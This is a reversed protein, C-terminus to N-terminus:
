SSAILEEPLLIKAHGPQCPGSRGLCCERSVLRKISSSLARSIHARARCTCRVEREQRGLLCAFLAEGLM